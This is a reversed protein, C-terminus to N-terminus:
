NNQVQQSLFLGNTLYSLILDIQILVDIGADGGIVVSGKIVVNGNWFETQSQATSHEAECGYEVEGNWHSCHEESNWNQNIEESNWAVGQDFGSGALEQIPDNPVSFGFWEGFSISRNEM